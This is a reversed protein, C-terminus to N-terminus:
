RQVAARYAADLGEAQREISFEKARRRAGAGLEARRSAPLAALDAIASALAAPDEPEVLSGAAPTVQEAIGDVRAGIVPRGSAMAELMAIPFPDTRSALVFVDWGRLAEWVDAQRRHRVGLARARALVGEAWEADLPDTAAGVIEFAVDLGREGAIAAADVFVDIGKRRSIRGVTGVVLPSGGPLPPAEEPAEV